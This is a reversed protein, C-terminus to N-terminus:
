GAVHAHRLTGAALRHWVARDDSGGV